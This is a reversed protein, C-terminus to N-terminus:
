KEVAAVIQSCSKDNCLGILYSHNIVLSQPGIKKLIPQNKTTWFIKYLQKTNLKVEAQRNDKKLTIKQNDQNFKTLTGDILYVKKKTTVKKKAEPSPSPQPIVSPKPWLPQHSPQRNSYFYWGLAMADVLLLVAIMVRLATKKM